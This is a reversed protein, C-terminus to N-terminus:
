RAAGGELLVGHAIEDLITFTDCDPRTSLWEQADAENNFSGCWAGCCYVHVTGVSSQARVQGSTMVRSYFAGHATLWGTM